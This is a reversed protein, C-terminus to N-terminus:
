VVLETVGVSDYSLREFAAIVYEQRDALLTQSLGSEQTFVFQVEYPAVDATGPLTPEPDARLTELTGDAKGAIPLPLLYLLQEFSLEQVVHSGDQNLDNLGAMVAVLANDVAPEDVLDADSPAAIIIHLRTPLNPDIIELDGLLTTQEALGLGGDTIVLSVGETDTVSLIQMDKVDAIGLVMGIVKNVSGNEKVPLSAFYDGIQERISDQIGRLEEELLSANTEIRLRLNIKQPRVATELSVQVGAPRADDIAKEVRQELEDTMGEVHPVVEVFGPQGAVEYVDAQVGQRVVAEQIATLTARESGHLFNKARDRLEIDNEDESAISAASLNTVGVIGAIPKAIVSLTNAEVGTTNDEVDRAKVKIRTQGNQLAVRAITEYEVNGDATMIRTGRPITISGRSGEARTFELECEFRGARIRDIGLLAVVHDLASGTATNIFGANYVAELQAYLRSIELGVSEAVTRTVSGVYLDNLATTANELQYSLYFLSGKDPLSGGEQWVLSAKDEGLAYDVGDVFRHTAGNHMGDVSVINKVPSNELPYSYPAESGSAPPFAHAEATVGGVIGTLINDMVEIYNKRRFSM